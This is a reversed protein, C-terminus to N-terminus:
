DLGGGVQDVRAIALRHVLLDALPELTHERNGGSQHDTGEALRLPQHFDVHNGNDRFLSKAMVKEMTPRQASVPWNPMAMLEELMATPARQGQSRAPTPATDLWFM